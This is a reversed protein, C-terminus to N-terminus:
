DSNGIMLLCVMDVCGGMDDCLVLHTAAAYGELGMGFGPTAAENDKNCIGM